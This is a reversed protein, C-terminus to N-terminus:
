TLHVNGIHTIDPTSINQPPTASHTTITYRPLTTTSILKTNNANGFLASHNAHHHTNLPQTNILHTSLTQNNLKLHRTIRSTFQINPSNVHRVIPVLLCFVWTFLDGWCVFCVGGYVLISSIFYLLVIPGLFGFLVFFGCFVGVSFRLPREPSGRSSKLDERELFLSSITV